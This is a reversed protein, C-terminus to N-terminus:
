SALSANDSIKVWLRLKNQWLYKEAALFNGETLSLRITVPELTKHEGKQTLSAHEPLAIKLYVKEPFSPMRSKFWHEYTSARSSVVGKRQQTFVKSALMSLM